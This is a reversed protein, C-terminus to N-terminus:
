LNIDKYNMDMRVCVNANSFLFFQLHENLFKFYDNKTCFHIQESKNKQVLSSTIISFTYFLLM